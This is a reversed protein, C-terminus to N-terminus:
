NKPKPDNQRIEPKSHPHPDPALPDANAPWVLSSNDCGSPSAAFHIVATQDSCFTYAAIPGSHIPNAVITYGVQTCNRFELQYDHKLAEEAIERVERQEWLDNRANSSFLECISEVV